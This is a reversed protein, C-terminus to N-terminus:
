ANALGAEVARRSVGALLTARPSPPVFVGAAMALSFVRANAREEARIRADEFSHPDDIIIM